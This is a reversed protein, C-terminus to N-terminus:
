EKVVFCTKIGYYKFCEITNADLREGCIAIPVAPPCGVTAASLVRGECLEVPLAESLSFMAERVSMIQEQEQFQLTEKEVPKGMSVNLLADEIQKLGAETIEPTFMLVLYDPDAFECVIDKTSLLEALEYGTYGYPKVNITIKLPENGILEYGSAILSNKVDTVQKMFVHLQEKYDGMLYKNVADLSQLILYSPSTSGFLALANKAQSAYEDPMHMGIHLYAAGTLAPLTKHASDCCMDAGLDMPHESEPLFKLYAGHANDVLLLVGHKHCVRAIAEIDVRNGLYDPSTIYVAVPKSKADALIREVEDFSVQCSLYSEEKKPYLWRIDFDLLAAASLFTKHANRGVLIWPREGKISNNVLALYLMARICLSSGETSYFTRANFINSANEESQAIIGNAEYLSDAGPIETIDNQEMGIVNTGKHGPMHLRLKNPNNAYDAVFDVIPTKM